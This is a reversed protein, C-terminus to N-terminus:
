QIISCIGMYIRIAPWDHLYYASFLNLFVPTPPPEYYKRLEPISKLKGVPLSMANMLMGRVKYTSQAM